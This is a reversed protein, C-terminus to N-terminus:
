TSSWYYGAGPKNKVGHKKLAPIIHRTLTSQELTLGYQERLRIIITKGRIPKRSSKIIKLVKTQTDTLPPVPSIQVSKGRSNLYDTVFPRLAQVHKDRSYSDAGAKHLRMLGKVLLDWLFDASEDSLGPGDCWGSGIDKERQNEWGPYLAKGTAQQLIKSAHAQIRAPAMSQDLQKLMRLFERDMQKLSLSDVM